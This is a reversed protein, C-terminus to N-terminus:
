KVVGREDTPADTYLKARAFVFGEMNGGRDDRIEFRAREVSGDLRLRLMPGHFTFTEFNCRDPDGVIRGGHDRWREGHVRSAVVGTNPDAKRLDEFFTKSVLATEFSTAHRPRKRSTCYEVKSGFSEFPDGPALLIRPDSILGSDVLSDLGDFAWDGHAEKYLELAVGVQRLQTTTAAMKANKRARGFVPFLLAALLAVIAIVVLLEMLTFGARHGPKPTPLEPRDLVLSYVASGALVCAALAIVLDLFPRASHSFYGPTTRLLVGHLVALAIALALPWSPRVGRRFPLHGLGVLLGIVVTTAVLATTSTKTYFGLNVGLSALGSTGAALGAALSRSNWPVSRRDKTGLLDPM